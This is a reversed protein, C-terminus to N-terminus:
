FHDHSCGGRDGDDADVPTMMTLIVERLPDVPVNFADLKMDDVVM